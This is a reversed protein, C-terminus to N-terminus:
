RWMNKSYINLPDIYIPDSQKIQRPPIPVGMCMYRLSDCPHDELSTDLDEVKHEDYMMLPMTRIIGKCTSFFYLKSYGEEDFKMRERVQMWGPIRENNGKDFWLGHKDAIDAASKGENDHSGDWISPDAFGQITKGKLWPHEHEIEAIKSMQEENSWKLGENPTKTCGYLELIMYLVNSLHENVGRPSLAYWACHFPKGYGWDYSRFIQWTDPVDFPEIVHTWRRQAYAEEVSILHEACLEADPRERFEEFYAGEFIDWRGYLWARKLAEPLSELEKLYEPQSEMLPKNDTVLSQIFSYDDPNEGNIFQRDIFLRRIYGHSVGGPNCTYYTRKPFNNVGRVCANLKKIQSETLQTAEDLYLIDTETGQFRDADKDNDCYRFLIESGNAFRMEKKSDNYRVYGNNNNVHLMDCLPKIHNAILEPYTKRVITQRIGPYKPVLISAKERIGMSKGGGRAGGFAVHRHTDLLFLKQKETPEPLSIQM